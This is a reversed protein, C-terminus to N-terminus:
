FLDYDFYKENRLQIMRVVLKGNDCRWIVLGRDAETLAVAADGSSLGQPLGEGAARLKKVEKTSFRPSSSKYIVMILEGFSNLLLFNKGDHSQTGSVVKKGYGTAEADTAGLALPVHVPYPRGVDAVFISEMAEINIFVSTLGNDAALSGPMKFVGPHFIFNSIGHCDYRFIDIYVHDDSLLTAVILDNHTHSFSIRRERSDHMDTTNCVSITFTVYVDGLVEAAKQSDSTTLGPFNTSLHVSLRRSLRNNSKHGPIRQLAINRYLDLRDDMLLQHNAFLGLEYVYLEGNLSVAVLTDNKHVTISTTRPDVPEAIGVYAWTEM